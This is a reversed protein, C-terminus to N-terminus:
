EEDTDFTFERASLKKRNELLFEKEYFSNPMGPVMMAEALTKPRAKESTPEAALERRV